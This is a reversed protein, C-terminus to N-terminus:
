IGSPSSYKSRSYRLSSPAAGSHDSSGNAEATELVGGDAQLYRFKYEMHDKQFGRRSDDVGIDHPLKTKAIEKDERGSRDTAKAAGQKNKPVRTFM